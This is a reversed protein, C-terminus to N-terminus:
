KKIKTKKRRLLRKPRNRQQRMAEYSKTIVDSNNGQVSNSVTEMHSSKRLLLPADEDEEEGEEITQIQPKRPQRTLPPADKYKQKLSAKKERRKKRRIMSTRIEEFDMSFTVLTQYLKGIKAETPNEGFFKLLHNNQEIIEQMQKQFNDSREKAQGFFEKISLHFKDKDSVSGKNV